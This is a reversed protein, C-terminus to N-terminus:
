KGLTTITVAANSATGQPAPPGKRHTEVAKAGRTANATGDLRPDVLDAPNAVLAGLNRRTACGFAPSPRNDAGMLTMREPLCPPLVAVAADFALWVGRAGPGASPVLQVAAPDAGRRRARAAIEARLRARAEPALGPAEIRLAGWGQDRWHDLFATLNGDRAGRVSGDPAVELALRQPQRVVEIPPPAFAAPPGQGACASLVLGALLLILPHRTM